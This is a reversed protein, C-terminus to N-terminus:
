YTNIFFKLRLLNVHHNHVYLIYTFNLKLTIDELENKKLWNYLNPLSTNYRKGAGSFALYKKERSICDRMSLFPARDTEMAGPSSIM